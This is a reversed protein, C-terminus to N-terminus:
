KCRWWRASWSGWGRDYLHNCLRRRRRRTRASAKADNDYDKKSNPFTITASSKGRERSAYTRASIADDDGSHEQSQEDDSSLGERVTPSSGRLMLDRM